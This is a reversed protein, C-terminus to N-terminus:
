SHHPTKSVVNWSVWFAPDLLWSKSCSSILHVGFLLIFSSCLMRILSNQPIRLFNQPFERLIGWFERMQMSHEM